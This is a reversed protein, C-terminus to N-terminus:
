PTLSIGQANLDRLAAIYAAPTAIAMGKLLHDARQRRNQLTDAITM